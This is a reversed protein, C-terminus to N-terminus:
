DAQLRDRLVQSYELVGPQDAPASLRLPTGDVQLRLHEVEHRLPDLAISTLGLLAVLPEIGHEGFQVLRCGAGRGAPVGVVRLSLMMVVVCVSWLVALMSAGDSTGTM